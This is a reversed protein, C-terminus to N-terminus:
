LPHKPQGTMRRETDELICDQEVRVAPRTATTTSIAMKPHIQIEQSSWVSCVPPEAEKGEGSSIAM